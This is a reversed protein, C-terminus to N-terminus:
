KIIEECAILVTLRAKTDAQITDCTRPCLHFTNGIIFFGDRMGCAAQSSVQEIPQPAGGNGPRYVLLARELDLTEGPPPEPADFSCQILAGDVIGEAITQFVANFNSLRCIPFRLGGTRISLEQYNIGPSEAGNNQITTCIEEQIPDSPLWPRGPPNNERLGIISHFIYNREIATGFHDPDLEFLQTEFSSASLSSDDDSIEVFIKFSGERLEESWPDQGLFDDEDYTDLILQLSDFSGVEVSYHYFIPTNAPM